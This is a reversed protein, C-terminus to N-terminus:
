SYGTSIMLEGRLDDGIFAFFWRVKKKEKKSKKPKEAEQAAREAAKRNNIGARADLSPVEGLASTDV